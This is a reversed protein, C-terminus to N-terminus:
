VEAFSGYLVSSTYGRVNLMYHLTSKWIVYYIGINTLEWQSVPWKNSFTWSYSMWIECRLNSTPSFGSISKCRERNGGLLNKFGQFNLSSSCRWLNSDLSGHLMLKFAQARSTPLEYLGPGLQLILAWLEATM